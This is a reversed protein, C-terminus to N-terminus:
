LKYNLGISAGFSSYKTTFNTSVPSVSILNSKYQPSFLITLGQRIQYSLQLKVLYNLSYSSIVKSTEISEVNTVSQNLYMGKTGSLYGLSLGAMPAIGCKGVKLQCGLIMPLEIYSLNTKGNANVINSDIHYAYVSDSITLLTSDKVDIIKEHYTVIGFHYITDIKIIQKNYVDWDTEDNKIWQKSKPAYNIQEGLSNYELGTQLMFGKKEFTLNLGYYFKNIKNESANRIDAYETLMQDAKIQKDVSQIGAHIGVYVNFRNKSTVYEDSSILLDNGKTENLVLNSPTEENRFMLIPIATYGEIISREVINVQDNSAISEEITHPTNSTNNNELIANSQNKNLTNLGLSKNHNAQTKNHNVHTITSHSILVTEQNNKQTIKQNKETTTIITTQQAIQINNSTHNNLKIQHQSASSVQKKSVDNNSNPWLLIAMLVSFLGLAGFFLFRRKKATFHEDLLTKAEPWFEEPNPMEDNNKNVNNM